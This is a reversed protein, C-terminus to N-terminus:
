NKREKEFNSQYIYNFHPRDRIGVQLYSFWTSSKQCYITRDITKKKIQGQTLSFLVTHWNSIKCKMRGNKKWNIENAM